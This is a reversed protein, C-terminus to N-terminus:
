RRTRTEQIKGREDVTLYVQIERKLLVHYFLYVLWGILTIIFIIFWIFSFRKPRVLQANTETQSIVRYGQAVYRNVRGQLIARREELTVLAENSM